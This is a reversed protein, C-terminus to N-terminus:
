RRQKLNRTTFINEDFEEDFRFESIEIKTSHGEKNHPTVEWRHPVQRGGVERIEGFQITRLKEGDEDFFQQLLQTGHDIAIWAVIKGWVVPADEHPTFEIVYAPSGEGGGTPDIGLMKHDYDDISSSENVLDDNTFDSGMWPQLMMSPPIRLTREVRPVYSWLNPHLKLFAAGKDKVPAEIRIFSRKEARDDWSKFAVVRPKSLRPSEITMAAAMYTRDSRLSNEARLAVERPDVDEPAAELADLSAGLAPPSVLLIAVVIAVGVGLVSRFLPEFRTRSWLQRVTGGFLLPRATVIVGDGGVNCQVTQEPRSRSIKRETRSQFSPSM